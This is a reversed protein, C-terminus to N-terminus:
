REGRAGMAKAAAHMASVHAMVDKRHVRVEREIDRSVRVMGHIYEEQTTPSAQQSQGLTATSVLEQAEEPPTAAKKRGGSRQGAKPKGMGRHHPKPPAGPARRRGRNAENRTTRATLRTPFTVEV